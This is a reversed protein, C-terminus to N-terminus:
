TEFKPWHPKALLDDSPGPLAAQDSMWSQQGPGQGFVPRSLPLASLTILAAFSISITTTFCRKRVTM